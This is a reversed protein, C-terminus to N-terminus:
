KWAGVYQTCVNYNSSSSKNEVNGAHLMQIKSAKNQHCFFFAESSISVLSIYYFKNKLTM